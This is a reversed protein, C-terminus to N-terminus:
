RASQRLPQRSVACRSQEPFSSTTFVIPVMRCQVVLASRHADLIDVARPDISRHCAHVVRRLPERARYGLDLSIQAHDSRDLHNSVLVRSPDPRISTHSAGCWRSRVCAARARPDLALQLRPQRLFARLRSQDDLLATQRPVREVQVAGAPVRMRAGPVHRQGTTHQHVGVTARRGATGQEPPSRQVLTGSRGAGHREALPSSCGPGWRRGALRDEVGRLVLDPRERLLLGSVLCPSCRLSRTAPRRCGTVHRLRTVGIVASRRSVLDQSTGLVAVSPGRGTM